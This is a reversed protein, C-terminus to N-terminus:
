GASLPRHSPSVYLPGIASGGIWTLESMRMGPALPLSRGRVAMNHAPNSIRDALGSISNVCIGDSVGSASSGGSADPMVTASM